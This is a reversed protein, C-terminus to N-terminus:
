KRGSCNSIKNIISSTSFGRLFQILKVEGGNSEVVSKEIIQDM